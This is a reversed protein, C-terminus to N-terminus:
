RFKRGKYEKLPKEVKTEVKPQAKPTDYQAPDVTPGLWQNQQKLNEVQQASYYPKSPISSSGLGGLLGNFVNYQNSWQSGPFMQNCNQSEQWCSGWHHYLYEHLEQQRNGGFFESLDEGINLTKNCKSCNLFYAKDPYSMGVASYLHVKGQTHKVVYDEYFSDLYGM